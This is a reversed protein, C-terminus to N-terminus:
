LRKRYTNCGNKTLNGNETIGLEKGKKTLIKMNLLKKIISSVHQIRIGTERSIQVLAIWDSDKQFGYTKRIIFLVIMYERGSLHFRVLKELIVNHLKTYGNNDLLLQVEDPDRDKKLGNCSRCSTRLNEIVTQGGKSTPVIHDLCAELRYDGGKIDKTLVVKEGCYFCTYNDREYVEKRLKADIKKRYDKM